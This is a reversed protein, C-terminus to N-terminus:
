LLSFAPKFLRFRSPIFSPIKITCLFHIIRIHFRDLPDVTNLSALYPLLHSLIDNFSFACETTKRLSPSCIALYPFFLSIWLLLTFPSVLSLPLASWFLYFVKLFRFSSVLLLNAFDPFLNRFLNRLLKDLCWFIRHRLISVRNWIKM